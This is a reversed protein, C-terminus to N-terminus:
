HNGEEIGRIALVISSIASGISTIIIALSVFLIIAVIPHEASWILLFQFNTM